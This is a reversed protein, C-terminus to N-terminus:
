MINTIIYRSLQITFVRTYKTKARSMLLTSDNKHRDTYRLSQLCKRKVTWYLRSLKLGTHLLLPTTTYLVICQDHNLICVGAPWYSSVDNANLLHYDIHPATFSINESFMIETTIASKARLDTSWLSMQVMDWIFM